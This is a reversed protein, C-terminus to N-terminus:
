SHQQMRPTSSYGPHTATNTAHKQRRLTSIYGRHAIKDAHIETDAHAATDTTYQQIRRRQQRWPISSYENHAATDV